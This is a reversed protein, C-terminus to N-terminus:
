WSTRSLQLTILFTASGTQPHNTLLRATHGFLGVVAPTRDSNHLCKQLSISLQCPSLWQYPENTCKNPKPTTNQNVTPTSESTTTPFSRPICRLSLSLRSWVFELYKGSRQLEPFPHSGWAGAVLPPDFFSRSCPKFLIYIDRPIRHNCWWWLLFSGERIM